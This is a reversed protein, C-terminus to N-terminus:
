RRRTRVPANLHVVGIESSPDGFQLIQDELEVAGEGVDLGCAALPVQLTVHGTEARFGITDAGLVPLRLHEAVESAAKCKGAERNLTRGFAPLEAPGAVFPLLRRPRACIGADCRDGQHHGPLEVFLHLAPICRMIKV